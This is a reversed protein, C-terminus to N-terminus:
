PTWYACKSLVNNDISALGAGVLAAKIHQKTPAVGNGVKSTAMM